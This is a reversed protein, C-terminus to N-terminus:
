YQRAKIRPMGVRSPVEIRRCLSVYKESIMLIVNLSRKKAVHINTGLLYLSFSAYRCSLHSTKNESPAFINKLRRRWIAQRLDIRFENVLFLERIPPAPHDICSCDCKILLRAVPWAQNEKGGVEPNM